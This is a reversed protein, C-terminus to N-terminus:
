YITHKRRSNEWYKKMSYKLAKDSGFIMNDSTTKPRGTFDANWNSMISKVGVVGYVRKNMQMVEWKKM